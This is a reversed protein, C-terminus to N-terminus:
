YLYSRPCLNHQSLTTAWKHKLWEQQHFLSSLLLTCLSLPLSESQNTKKKLLKCWGCVVGCVISSNWRCMLTSIVRMHKKGECYTLKLKSSLDHIINQWLRQKDCHYWSFCGVNQDSLKILLSLLLYYIHEKLDRKKGQHPYRYRSNRSDKECFNQSLTLTDLYFWSHKLKKAELNNSWLLTFAKENLNRWVFSFKM